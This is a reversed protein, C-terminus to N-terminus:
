PLKTMGTGSPPLLAYTTNLVDLIGSTMGREAGLTLDPAYGTRLGFSDCAVRMVVHEVTQGGAMFTFDYTVLDFAATKCSDPLTAGKLMPANLEAQIRRATAADTFTHDYATSHSPKNVGTGCTVGAPCGASPDIVTSISQDRTVVVHVADPPTTATVGAARTNGAGAHLALIVGVLAVVVILAALPALINRIRRDSAEQSDQRIWM